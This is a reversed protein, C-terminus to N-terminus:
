KTLKVSIPAIESEGLYCINQLTPAHLLLHTCTHKGVDFDDCFKLVFPNKPDNLSFVHVEQSWKVSHFVLTRMPSIAWLTHPQFRPSRVGLLSM